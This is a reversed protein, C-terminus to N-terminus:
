YVYKGLVKIIEGNSFYILRIGKEQEDVDQGLLNVIKIIEKQAQFNNLSIVGFTEMTGDYDTQSLRYYNIRKEPDFDTYNYYSTSSNTGAGNIRILEKYDLGNISKEITFYDNNMESATSWTLLNNADLVEGMFYILEIPMGSDTPLTGTMELTSIAGARTLGNGSLKAGLAFSLAGDALIVGKFTVNSGINVAGNIQWFVNGILASNILLIESAAIVDLLGNIKIIFISNPNNEGDLTLTGNLTSAASICYNNATLIQGGGLLTGLMSDCPVSTLYNYATEVDASAQLTVADAQLIQGNVIGPPFGTIAGAQTGVDGTFVSPGVNDIAGVSTFLIFDSATGLNVQAHFTYFTFLLTFTTIFQNILIM